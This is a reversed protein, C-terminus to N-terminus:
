NDEPSLSRKETEERIMEVYPFERFGKEKYVEMAHENEYEAELRIVCDPYTEELGSLFGSALGMGRAEERLYLDEIWICPKGFETSFSHAIMAYGWLSSDADKYAFVFGELFPSDSLCENIDRNFIEDSGGTLTADSSYFERMMELVEKRDSRRMARLTISGITKPVFGPAEKEASKKETNTQPASLIKGAGKKAAKLAYKAAKKMVRRKLKGM